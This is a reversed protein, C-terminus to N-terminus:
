MLFHKGVTRVGAGILICDFRKQKLRESVVTEATEGLDTLCLQADYGLRNLKAEDAELAVQVKAADLGPFDAYDPSSFDLLQPQLGIILVSSNTAMKVM